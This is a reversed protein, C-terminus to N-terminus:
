APATAGAVVLPRHARIRDGYTEADPLVRFLQGPDDSAVVIAYEDVVLLGISPDLEFDELFKSLASGVPNLESVLFYDRGQRRFPQVIALVRHGDGEPKTILPTVAEHYGLWAASLPVVEAPDAAVIEAHDDLVYIAESFLAQFRFTHLRKAMDDSIVPLDESLRGLNQIATSITTDLSHAITHALLLRQDVFNRRIGPLSIVWVTGTVIVLLLFWQLLVTNLRRRLRM